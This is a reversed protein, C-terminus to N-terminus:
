RGKVIKDFPAIIVVNPHSITILMIVLEVIHCSSRNRNQVLELPDFISVRQWELFVQLIPLLFIIAKQPWFYVCEHDFFVLLLIM